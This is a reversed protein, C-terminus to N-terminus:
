VVAEANDLIVVSIKQSDELVVSHQFGEEDVLWLCSTTPSAMEIVQVFYVEGNMRVSDGEEISWVEMKETIM